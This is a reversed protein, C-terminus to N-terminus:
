IVGKAALKELEADSMGLLGGYIEANHAGLAPGAHAIRGPTRKLKPVVSPMTVKGVEDDPVEAINHRAAFHPDEAIEDARYIGGFPVNNGVLREEIDHFDREAIWDALLKELEDARQQRDRSKAYRPDDALEPHGILGFVRRVLADTGATLAVWSYHIPTREIVRSRLLPATV